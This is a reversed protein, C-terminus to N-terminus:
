DSSSDNIPDIVVREVKTIPQGATTVDLDQKDKWEEQSRNKVGFIAASANGDGTSAVQMLTREWWVSAAAQGTKVSASFEPYQDMWLKVTSYSVGISGAFAKTSYGESMFEIAQECFAPDYKTPRAM